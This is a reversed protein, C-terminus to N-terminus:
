RNSIQDLGKRTRALTAPLAKESVAMMAELIAKVKQRNAIWRELIRAEEPPLKRSVTKGAKKTSWYAYPGHRAEPDKHCACGPNGCELRRRSVSGAWLFGTRALQQALRRHERECGALAKESSTKMPM